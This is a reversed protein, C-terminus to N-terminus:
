HYLKKGGDRNYEEILGLSDEVGFGFNKNWDDEPYLAKTEALVKELNVIRKQLLITIATLRAESRIREGRTVERGFEDFDVDLRRAYEEGKAVLVKRNEPNLVVVRNGERGEQNEPM